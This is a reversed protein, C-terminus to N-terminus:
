TLDNLQKVHPLKEQLNSNVHQLEKALQNCRCKHLVSLEAGGRAVRELMIIFCKNSLVINSRTALMNSSPQSVNKEKISIM